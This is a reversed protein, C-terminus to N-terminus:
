FIYAFDAEAHYSLRLRVPDLGLNAVRFHEYCAGVWLLMGRFVNVTGKPIALRDAQYLDPTTLDIALLSDDGKVTSNLLMPRHGNIKLEAGSLFRTGDHYVGHEGGDACSNGFRDLVAFTRGYKLVRSRDDSRASTALVHWQDHVTEQM